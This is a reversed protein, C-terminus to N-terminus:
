CRLISITPLSAKISFYTGDPREAVGPQGISTSGGGSPQAPCFGPGNGPWCAVSASDERRAEFITLMRETWEAGMLSVIAVIAGAPRLDARGQAPQAVLGHRRWVVGAIIGARAFTGIHLSQLWRPHLIISTACGDMRGPAILSHHQLFAILPLTHSPTPPSRAARGAGAGM